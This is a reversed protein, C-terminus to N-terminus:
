VMYRSYGRMRGLAAEVKESGAKTIKGVREQFAAIWEEKEAQNAASIYLTRSSSVVVGFCFPTSNSGDPMSPNTDITTGPTLNLVGKNNTSNETKSYTVSDNGLVFYRRRWNWPVSAARKSLYGTKNKTQQDIQNQLATIWSQMEQGDEATVVITKKGTQIKFGFGSAHFSNHALIECKGQFLLSGKSDGARAEQENGYYTLDSESLVFFRKQWKTQLSSGGKKLLYGTKWSNM